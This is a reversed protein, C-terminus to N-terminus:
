RTQDYADAAAVAARAEHRAKRMEPSLAEDDDDEDIFAASVAADEDDDEETTTDAEGTGDSNPWNMQAATLSGM